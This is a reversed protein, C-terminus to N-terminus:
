CCRPDRISAIARLLKRRHGLPIGLQTLDADSLDILVDADISQAAFVDAYHELGLSALWSHIDGPSSQVQLCTASSKNLTCVIVSM